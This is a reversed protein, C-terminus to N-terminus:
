ILFNMVCINVNSYSPISFFSICKLVDSLADTSKEGEISFVMDQLSYALLIVCCNDESHSIRNSTQLHIKLLQLCGKLREGTM